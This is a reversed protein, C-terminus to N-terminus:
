ASAIDRGHWGLAWIVLGCTAIIVVSWVPSYALWMFNAIAIVAALLIGVIRAWLQAYILGIGALLVVIGLILHIWGWTTVDFKYVYDKTVVFYNKKIVAALGQLAEFGGLVMMMTAAFVNFGVAIGSRKDAV